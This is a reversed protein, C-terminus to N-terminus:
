SVKARFLPRQSKYPPLDKTKKDGDRQWRVYGTNPQKQVVSVAQTWKGFNVNNWLSIFSDTSPDCLPTLTKAGRGGSTVSKGHSSQKENRKIKSNLVSYKLIEVCQGQGSKYYKKYDSKSPYKQEIKIEQSQKPSYDRGRPSNQQGGQRPSSRLAGINPGSYQPAHEMMMLGKRVPSVIVEQHSTKNTTGCRLISPVYGLSGYGIPMQSATHPRQQAQLSPKFPYIDM